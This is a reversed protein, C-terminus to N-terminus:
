KLFYIVWQAFLRFIAWQARNQKAAPFRKFFTTMVSLFRALSFPLHLFDTRLLAAFLTHFGTLIM